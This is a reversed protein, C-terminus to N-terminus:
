APPQTSALEEETPIRAVRAEDPLLDAIAAMLAQTDAVADVLGLPVPEGVNVAVDPPHHLATLNPV